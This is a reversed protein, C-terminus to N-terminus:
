ETECSARTIPRISVSLSTMETWRSTPHAGAVSRDEAMADRATIGGRVPDHDPGPDRGVVTGFRVHGPPDLIGGIRASSLAAM